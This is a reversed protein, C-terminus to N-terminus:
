AFNVDGILPTTKSFIISGPLKTWGPFSIILIPSKLLTLISTWIESNSNPFSSIPCITSTTNSAKGLWFYIPVNFRIEGAAFVVARKIGTSTTIGLMSLLIPLPKNALTLKWSVALCFTTTGILAIWTSAFLFLASSFNM